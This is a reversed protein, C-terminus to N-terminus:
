MLPLLSSSLPHASVSREENGRLRHRALTESFLHMALVTVIDAEAFACFVVADRSDSRAVSIGLEYLM